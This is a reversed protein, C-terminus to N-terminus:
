VACLVIADLIASAQERYIHVNELQKRVESKSSNDLPQPCFYAGKGCASLLAVMEGAQLPPALACWCCLSVM